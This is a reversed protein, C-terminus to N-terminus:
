IYKNKKNQEETTENSFKIKKGLFLIDRNLNFTQENSM